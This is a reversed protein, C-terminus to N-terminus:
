SWEGFREIDLDGGGVVTEIDVHPATAAQARRFGGRRALTAPRLRTARMVRWPSSTACCDTGVIMSPRPAARVAAWPSGNRCLWVVLAFVGEGTQHSAANGPRARRTASRNPGADPGQQEAMNSASCARTNAASLSSGRWRRAQAAGGHGCRTKSGHVSRLRAVQEAPWQHRNFEFANRHRQTQDAAGPRASACPGGSRLTSIERTTATTCRRSKRM